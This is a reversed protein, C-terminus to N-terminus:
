HLTQESVTPDLGAELRVLGLRIRATAKKVNQIRLWMNLQYELPLNRAARVSSHWVVQGETDTALFTYRCLSGEDSLIIEPEWGNEKCMVSLTQLSGDTLDNLETRLKKIDFM